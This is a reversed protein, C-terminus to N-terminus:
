AVSVIFVDFYKDIIFHCKGIMRILFLHVFEDHGTVSEMLVRTTGGRWRKLERGGDYVSEFM